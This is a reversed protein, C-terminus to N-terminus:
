GRLECSATMASRLSSVAPRFRARLGSEVPVLERGRSSLMECVPGPMGSSVLWCTSILGSSSFFMSFLMREM